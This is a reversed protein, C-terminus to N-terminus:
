WPSSTQQQTKNITSLVKQVIGVTPFRRLPLKKNGGLLEKNGGSGLFHNLQYYFACKSENMQVELNFAFEPGVELQAVLFKM